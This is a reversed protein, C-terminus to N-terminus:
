LLSDLDRDLEIWAIEQEYVAIGFTLVPLHAHGLYPLIQCLRSRLRLGNTDNGHPHLFGPEEEILM